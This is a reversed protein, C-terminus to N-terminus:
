GFIPINEVIDQLREINLLVRQTYKIYQNSFEIANRYTKHAEVYIHQISEHVIRAKTWKLIRIGIHISQKFRKFVEYFLAISILNTQSYM